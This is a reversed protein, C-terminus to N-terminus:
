QLGAASRCWRLFEGPALKATISQWSESATGLAEDPSKTGSEIAHLEEALAALLRDELPTRLAFTPNSVEVSVYRQMAQTLIQTREEAFGYALWCRSEYIHENRFPGVGLKPDDLFALSSGLTATASLLEWAAKQQKSSTFVVGIKGGNGLYPVYNVGGTAPVLKGDPGYAEETGPLPALGFKPDVEGSRTKPLRALEALSLIGLVASGDALAAAPDGAKPPRCKGARALWKGAAVFGPTTLRPSGTKLDFQFSLTQADGKPGAALIGGRSRAPRDYCAALQYFRTALTDDSSWPPLSPAGTAEAFYEAIEVFDDWSRPPVQAQPFKARLGQVNKPDTLRDNRYVLLYGDGALPLGAETGAWGSLDKRYADLMKDWHLRNGGSRIDGPLAALQEKAAYRGLETPALIALDYDNSPSDAAQEVVKVQAKNEIAWGAARDRFASAFRSDTCLVRIAVTEPTNVAGTATTSPTSSGCGTSGLIFLTLLVSIRTIRTSIAIVVGNQPRSERFNLNRVLSIQQM